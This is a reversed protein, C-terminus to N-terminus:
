LLTPQKSCGAQVALVHATYEAYLIAICIETPVKRSSEFTNGKVVRLKVSNLMVRQEFLTRVTVVM